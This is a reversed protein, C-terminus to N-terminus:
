RKEFFPNFGTKNGAIGLILGTECTPKPLREAGTLSDTTLNQVNPGGLAKFFSFTSYFDAVPTGKNPPAIMVFRFIFPFKENENIHSYMSRVVLAGMSHTVFSVSDPNENKIKNYLKLGVSDINEAFSNYTYNESTYGDKQIAHQIKNMLLGFGGYGHIIYVKHSASAALTVEMLIFIILLKKITM